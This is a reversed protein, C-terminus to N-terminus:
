PNWNNDRGIDEIFFECKLGRTKKKSQTRPSKLPINLARLWM